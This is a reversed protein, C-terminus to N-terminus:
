KFLIKKGGKIYIGGHQMTSVRQGQLNYLPENQQEINTEVFAIGTTITPTTKGIGDKFAEEYAEKSSEPVTITTITSNKFNYKGEITPPTAGKFTLTTVGDCGEFAQDGISTLTSPFTVSTLTKCQWFAYKNISTVGEPIVLDTVLENNLYLSHNGNSMFGTSCSNGFDIKCWAALDTIYTGKISTCGQFADTGISTISSPITLKTINSAGYFANESISTVGDPITLETLEAGNLYLHHSLALPNSYASAFSVSCWATLDSIYVGGKSLGTCNEFASQGVSKVSAPITISTLGTYDCFAYQGIKTVGNPVTLEGVEQNNVYLKRTSTQKYLPSSSKSAFYMECWTAADPVYVKTIKTCKQFANFGISDLTSPFSVSTISTCGYFAYHGIRTVGEPIVLEKITSGNLYLKKSYYLPNSYGQGSLSKGVANTFEINCWAALDTIYVGGTLGKCNYFAKEGVKKISAPIHVKTMKTNGSFAEAAIATVSYSENDSGTVSAPITVEGTYGDTKSTVTATKTTADLIYNIGEIEETTTASLNSFCACAFATLVLMRLSDHTFHKM